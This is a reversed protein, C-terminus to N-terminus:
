LELKEVVPQLIDRFSFTNERNAYAEGNHPKHVYNLVKKGKMVWVNLNGMFRNDDEAESYGGDVWPESCMRVKARNDFNILVKIGKPIEVGEIDTVEFLQTFQHMGAPKVEFAEVFIDRLIESQRRKEM